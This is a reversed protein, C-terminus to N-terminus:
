KNKNSKMKNKLTGIIAQMPMEIPPTKAIMQQQQLFFVLPLLIPQNNYNVDCKSYIKM